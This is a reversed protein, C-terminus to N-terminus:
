LLEIAALAYQNSGTHDFQAVADFPVVQRLEDALFQFLNKQDGHSRIAEALRILSEYRPALSHTPRAGELAEATLQLQVTLELVFGRFSSAPARQFKDCRSGISQGRGM